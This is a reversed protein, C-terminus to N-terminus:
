KTMKALLTRAQQKFRRDEPAWDRDEPAAVAAELARRAEDNRDLEILTEALFLHTIISQPNYALANRLHEESRRMNGGFLRPVKYYWRGLARDASGDMYSPDIKLVTELSRRIDSRYRLGARLGHSEALAGMNAAAWFHGEPRSPALTAVRRATTVGEELLRKKADSDDPGNTGLWYLAKAIKWLPEIDDPRESAERKWIEIALRASAPNERDAYAREADGSPPAQAMALMAIMTWSVFGIAASMM